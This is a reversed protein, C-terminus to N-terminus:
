RGSQIKPNTALPLDSGAPGATVCYAAILTQRTTLPCQTHRSGNSRNATAHQQQEQPHPMSNISTLCTQSNSNSCSLTQRKPSRRCAKLPTCVTSTGGHQMMTDKWPTKQQSPSRHRNRQQMSSVKCCLVADETTEQVQQLDATTHTKHHPSDILLGHAQVGTSYCRGSLITSHGMVGHHHSWGVVQTTTGHKSSRHRLVCSAEGRDAGAHPGATTHLQPMNSGGHLAHHYPQEATRVGHFCSASSATVGNTPLTHPPYWKSGLWKCAEQSRQGSSLPKNAPNLCQFGATGPRM